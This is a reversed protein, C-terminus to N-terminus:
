SIILRLTVTSVSKSLSSNFESLSLSIGPVDFRALNIELGNGLPFLCSCSNFDGSVGSVILENPVLLIKVPLWEVGVGM